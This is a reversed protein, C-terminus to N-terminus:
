VCRGPPLPSFLNHQDLTEAIDPAVPTILSRLVGLRMGSHSETDLETLLQIRQPRSLDGKVTAIAEILRQPGVRVMQLFAALAEIVVLRNTDSLNKRDFLTVGAGHHRAEADLFSHFLEALAPHRCHRSLSRYHSLGWGELVVQLVFQLVSRDATELLSALLQLFPDNNGLRDPKAVFPSLQALHTTEDASFLAYLMREETTEALLTMKAMYGVGAKEIFYSEALLSQSALQLVHTQERAPAAQFLATQSLDFFAADWPPPSCGDPEPRGKQGLASTLVRHLKHTPDLPPLNFGAVTATM